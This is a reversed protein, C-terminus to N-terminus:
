FGGDEFIYICESLRETQGAADTASLTAPFYDLRIASDRFIGWGARNRNIKAELGSVYARWQPKGGAIPARGVFNKGNAIFTFSWVWNGDRPDRFSVNKPETTTYTLPGTTLSKGAIDVSVMGNATQCAFFKPAAIAPSALVMLALALLVKM